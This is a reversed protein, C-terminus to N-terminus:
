IKISVGTKQQQLGHIKFVVLLTGATGDDEISFAGFEANKSFNIRRFIILIAAV